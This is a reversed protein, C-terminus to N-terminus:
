HQSLATETAENSRAFKAHGGGVWFVSCFAPGETAWVVPGGSREWPSPSTTVRPPARLERLASLTPSEPPPAFSSLKPQSQIEPLPATALHHWHQTARHEPSSCIECVHLRQCHHYKTPVCSMNYNWEYCITPNSNNHAVAQSPSLVPRTLPSSSLNQSRPLNKTPGTTTPLDILQPSPLIPKFPVTGTIETFPFTPTEDLMNAFIENTPSPTGNKPMLVGPSEVRSDDEWVIQVLTGESSYPTPAPHQPSQKVPLSTVVTSTPSMSQPSLQVSTQSFTSPFSVFTEGYTRHRSIPCYFDMQYASPRPINVKFKGRMTTGVQLAMGTKPPGMEDQTTAKVVEQQAAAVAVGEALATEKWKETWRMGPLKEVTCDDVVPPESATCASEVPEVARTEQFPDENGPEEDNAPPLKVFPTQVIASNTLPQAVEIFSRPPPPPPPPLQGTQGLVHRFATTWARNNLARLEAESYNNLPPEYGPIIWAKLKYKSRIHNERNTLEYRLIRYRLTRTPFRHNGWLTHRPLRAGWFRSV